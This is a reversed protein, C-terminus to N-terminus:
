TTDQESISGPTLGAKNLLRRLSVAPRRADSEFAYSVTLSYSDIILDTLQRAFEILEVVESWAPFIFSAPVVRDRHAIAKDRMMKLHALAQDLPRGSKSDAKPLLQKLHQVLVLSLAEAQLTTLVDCAEGQGILFQILPERNAIALEGAHSDILHVASAISRSPNRSSYTAYLRTLSLCLHAQLTVQLNAFFSKGLGSKNITGIYTDLTELLRRAHDAHFVDYAIGECVVKDLISRSSDPNTSM